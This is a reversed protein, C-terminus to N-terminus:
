GVLFTRRVSAVLLLRQLVVVLAGIPVGSLGHLAWFRCCYSWKCTVTNSIQLTTPNRCICHDSIFQCLLGCCVVKEDFFSVYQKPDSQRRWCSCRSATLPRLLLLPVSSALVHPHSLAAWVRGPCLVSRCGKLACRGRRRMVQREYSVTLM